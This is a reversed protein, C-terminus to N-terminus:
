TKPQWEEPVLSMDLNPHLDFECGILHGSGPLNQDCQRSLEAVLAHGAERLSSHVFTFLGEYPRLDLHQLEDDMTVLAMDRGPELNARTLASFGEVAMLASSYVIATVSKNNLVRETLQFGAHTMPHRTNVVWVSEEPLGAESFADMM